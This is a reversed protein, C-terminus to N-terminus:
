QKRIHVIPQLILKLNKSLCFDDIAKTVGWKPNSVHQKDYDDFAIIGGHELRSFIFDICNKLSDYLDGDYFIFSFKHNKFKKPISEEFLGKILIVKDNVQFKQLKELVMEYSTKSFMGKVNKSHSFKDEYPLGTFTDCSYCKKSSKIKKLLRAIMITAGGRYTGLELIDGDINKIEDILSLLNGMTESELISLLEKNNLNYFALEEQITTSFQPFM